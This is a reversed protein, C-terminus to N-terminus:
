AGTAPFPIEFEGKQVKAIFEDIITQLEAPTKALKATVDPNIASVEVQKNFIGSPNFKNGFIGDRIRDFYGQYLDKLHIFTASVFVDPAAAIQTGFGTSIPIGAAAATQAAGICIGDGSCYIYDAGQDILQQTVEAAKQVDVFSGAFGELFKVDPKITKVADRFSQHMIKVFDFEPGGVVGITDGILANGAILGNPYAMDQTNYLWDELNVDPKKQALVGGSMSWKVNPFEKYLKQIPDVYEIGHGIILDFGKTAFDRLAPESDTPDVLEELVEYEVAGDQEAAQVLGEYGAQSFSNDNKIGPLLLAVRLKQKDAGGAAAATTETTGAATTETAAASTETAPATTETAAATTETAVATTETAGDDDNGCAASVMGIAFTLALLRLSMGKARM